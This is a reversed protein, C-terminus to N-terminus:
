QKEKDQCQLTISKQTEFLNQCNGCAVISYSDYYGDRSLTRNFLTCEEHDDCDMRFPCSFPCDEKSDKEIQLALIM